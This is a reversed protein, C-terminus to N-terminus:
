LKIPLNKKRTRLLVILVGVGALVLGYTIVQLTLQSFLFVTSLVGLFPLLPFRGINLPVKFPRNRRPDTYRLKILSLNVTFFVVFIMFNSINAVIAIDRLLVFLVSLCSLGFIAVWPTHFSSHIRSLCQPLSGSYAMGYVIRSGGLMVVLVTNLTSFLAIWSMLVFADSGMSVAAVDALPVGSLGLVRFDLVSVSTIAVCIYLFVTFFIAILM